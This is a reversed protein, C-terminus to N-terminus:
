TNQGGSLTPETVSSLNITLLNHRLDPLLGERCDEQLGRAAEYVHEFDALKVGAAPYMIGVNDIMGIPLYSFARGRNPRPTIAVLSLQTMLEEQHWVTGIAPVFQKEVEAVGSLDKVEGCSVGVAAVIRSTIGCQFLRNSIERQRLQLFEFQLGRNGETNNGTQESM